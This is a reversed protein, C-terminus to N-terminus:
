SKLFTKPLFNAFSNASQSLVCSLLALIENKLLIVIKDGSIPLFDSFITIQVNVGAQTKSVYFVERFSFFDINIFSCV